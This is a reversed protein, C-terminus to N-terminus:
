FIIFSSLYSVLNAICSITIAKKFDLKFLYKYLIGEFIWIVFELLTIIIWIKTTSLSKKKVLFRFFINIAPNTLVNVFIVQLIALKDKIM